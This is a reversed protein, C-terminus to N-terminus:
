VKSIRYSDRTRSAMRLCGALWYAESDSIHVAFVQSAWAVFGEEPLTKITSGEEVLVSWGIPSGSLFIKDQAVNYIFAWTEGSETQFESYRNIYGQRGLWTMWEPKLITDSM